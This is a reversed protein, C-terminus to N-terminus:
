KFLKKGTASTSTIRAVGSAWALFVQGFLHGALETSTIHPPFGSPLLSVPNVFIVAM